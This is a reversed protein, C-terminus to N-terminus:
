HMLVIAATIIAAVAVAAPTLALILVVTRGLPGGPQIIKEILEIIREFLHPWGGEGHRTSKAMTTGGEVECPSVRPSM